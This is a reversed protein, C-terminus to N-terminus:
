MLLITNFVEERVGGERHGHRGTGGQVAISKFGGGRRSNGRIFVQKGGVLTKSGEGIM